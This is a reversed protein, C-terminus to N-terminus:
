FRGKEGSLLRFAAATLLPLLYAATQVAGGASVLLNYIAHYIVAACLLGLICAARLPREDWVPGLAGGYFSGCVVHMAGTGFGRIVLHGLEGAGNEALWCVNEFTAFSAALVIAALRFRGAEPQFVALYFLLPLLKLMEEVVPAVQTAANAGDARYYLAFFTNLYAALLCSVMGGLCCIVAPRSAKPLFLLAVALPAAMCVFINEIYM